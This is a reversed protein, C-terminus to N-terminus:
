SAPHPHRLLPRLLRRRVLPEDPQRRFHISTFHQKFFLIFYTLAAFLDTDAVAVAFAAFFFTFVAVVFVIAVVADVDDVIADAGSAVPLDVFVFLAPAVPLIGIM